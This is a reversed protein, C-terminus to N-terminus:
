GNDEDKPRRKSKLGGIAGVLSARQRGTLGDAGIKDSAFGGTKGNRGGIAGIKRYFDPDNKKNKRAAKQGGEITGAM